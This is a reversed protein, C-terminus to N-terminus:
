SLCYLIIFLTLIVLEFGKFMLHSKPGPFDIEDRKTGTKENRSLSYYIQLILRILNEHPFCNTFKLTSYLPTIITIIMM